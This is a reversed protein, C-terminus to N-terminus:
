PFVHFFNPDAVNELVFWFKFIWFYTNTLHLFYMPMALIFICAFYVYLLRNCLFKYGTFLCIPLRGHLLDIGMWGLVRQAYRTCYLPLITPYPLPLLATAPRTPTLVTAPTELWRLWDAQAIQPQLVHRAGARRGGASARTTNHLTNHRASGRHFLGIVQASGDARYPIYM